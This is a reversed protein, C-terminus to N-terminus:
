WCPQDKHFARALQSTQIEGIQCVHFLWGGVMGSELQKTLDLLTQLHQRWSSIGQYKMSYTVVVLCLDPQLCVFFVYINWGSNSGRGPLLVCLRQCCDPFSGGGSRGWRNCLVPSMCSYNSICCQKINSSWSSHATCQLTHINHLWNSSGVQANPMKM